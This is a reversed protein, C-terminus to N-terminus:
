LTIYTVAYGALALFAFFAGIVISGVIIETKMQKVGIEIFAVLCPEPQIPYTNHIPFFMRCSRIDGGPQPSAEVDLLVDPKGQLVM